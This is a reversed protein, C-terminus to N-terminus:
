DIKRKSLSLNSMKKVFCKDSQVGASTLVKVTM